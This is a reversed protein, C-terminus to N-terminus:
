KSKLFYLQKKEFKKFFRFFLKEFYILLMISKFKYFCFNIKNDSNRFKFIFLKLNNTNLYYINNLYIKIIDIIILVYIYQPLNFDYKYLM